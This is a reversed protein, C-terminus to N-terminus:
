DELRLELEDAAIGAAVGAATNAAAKSVMRWYDLLRQGDHRLHHLVPERQDEIARSLEEAWGDVVEWNQRSREIVAVEYDALGSEPSGDGFGAATDDDAAAEADVRGYRELLLAIEIATREHEPIELCPTLAAQEEPRVDAVPVECHQESLGDGPTPTASITVSMPVGVDWALVAEDPSRGAWALQVDASLNEQGLVRVKATSSLRYEDLSLRCHVSIQHGDWTAACWAFLGEADTTEVDAVFPEDLMPLDDVPRVSCTVAVGLEFNRIQLGGGLAPAGWAAPSLNASTVLAKRRRGRRLWYLKAHSWRPDQLIHREHLWSECQRGPAPVERFSVNQRNFAKASAKPLVWQKRWPHNDDVWALSVSEGSIGAYSLWNAWAADNWTGVTPVLVEVGVKGTAGLDVNRLGAAGWATAKRRLTSASHVGPVSAVFNADPPCKTRVLLEVWGKTTIEGDAGASAGMAALLGPVVGWSEANARTAHEGVPLVIRWAAQLQDRFAARTLNCSSVVVELWDSAEGDEDVTWHLMWLKSHQVAQSSRGIPHLRIQRWLWSPAPSSPRYSHFISIRNRIRNLAEHLEAYFLYRERNSEGPEQRNLSLWAPLLDEILLIPDPPDFTTLLAKRLLPRRRGWPDHETCPSMMAEWCPRGVDNKISM